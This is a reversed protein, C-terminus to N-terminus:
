INCPAHVQLEIYGCSSLLACNEIATKHLKLGALSLAALSANNRAM